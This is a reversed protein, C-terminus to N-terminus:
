IGLFLFFPVKNIINVYVDCASCNQLKRPINVEHVCQGVEAQLLVAAADPADSSSNEPEEEDEEGVGVNRDPEQLDQLLDMWTKVPFPAIRERQSWKELRPQFFTNKNIKLFM